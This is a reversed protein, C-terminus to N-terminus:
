RRKKLGVFASSFDRGVLKWDNRLAEADTSMKRHPMKPLIAISGAGAIRAKRARTSARDKLEIETNRDIAM